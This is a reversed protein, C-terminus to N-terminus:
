SESVSLGRLFIRAARRAVRELQSATARARLGILIEEHCGARLLHLFADADATTDDSFILGARSWEGIRIALAQRVVAHGRQHFIRAMRPDRFGGGVVGRYAQLAEHRVYFALVRRGLAELVEVPAGRQETFHAEAVFRATAEGIVAAFLGQKGGFYKRLTAKSGGSVALVERLTTGAYGKRGFV